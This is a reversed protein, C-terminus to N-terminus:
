TEEAIKEEKENSLKIMFYIDLPYKFNKKKGKFTSM